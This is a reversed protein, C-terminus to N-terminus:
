PCIGLRSLLDVNSASGEPDTEEKIYVIPIGLERAKAVKHEAPNEGVIILDTQSTVSKVIKAGLSRLYDELLQRSM